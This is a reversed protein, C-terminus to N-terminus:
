GLPGIFVTGLIFAALLKQNISLLLYHPLDMHKEGEMPLLLAIICAVAMIIVWLSPGPHSGFGTQSNLFNFSKLFM